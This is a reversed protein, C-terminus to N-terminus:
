ATIQKQVTWQGKGITYIYAGVTQQVDYRFNGNTAFATPTITLESNAIVIKGNATSLEQILTGFKDKVQIVIVTGTMSYAVSNCFVELCLPAIDGQTYVITETFPQVAYIM